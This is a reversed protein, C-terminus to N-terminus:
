LNPQVSYKRCYCYIFKQETGFPTHPTEWTSHVIEFEEGFEGHLREPRYRVVELGSCRAPGDPAFTAVIVHGGTRVSHRVADVYRQRDTVQTLFAFRIVKQDDSELSRAQM